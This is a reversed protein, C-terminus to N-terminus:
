GGSEMSLGDLQGASLNEFVDRDTVEVCLSGDPWQMGTGIRKGSGDTVAVEGM